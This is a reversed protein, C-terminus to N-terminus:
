FNLFIVTFVHGKFITGINKEKVSQYMLKTQMVFTKINSFNFMEFILTSEIKRMTELWYKNLIALNYLDFLNFYHMCLHRVIQPHFFIEKALCNKKCKEHAICVFYM